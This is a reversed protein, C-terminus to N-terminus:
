TAHGAKLNAACRASRLWGLGLFALIALMIAAIRIDPFLMEQQVPVLALHLSLMKYPLFKQYKPDSLLDLFARRSPYRMLIIRSWSDEAANGAVVNADRTNGAFIPYAGNSIAIPMVSDEYYTNASASTGKFSAPLGPLPAAHYRMLNVMYVPQGDDNAAFAKLRRVFDAKAEAELPLTKELQATYRDAEAPSLPRGPTLWHWLATCSIILAAALIIEFRWATM